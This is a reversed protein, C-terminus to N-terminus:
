LLVEQTVQSHSPPSADAMKLLAKSSYDKEM